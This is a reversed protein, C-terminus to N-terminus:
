GFIPAAHAMSWATLPDIGMLWAGVKELGGGQSLTSVHTLYESEGLKILLFTKFGVFGAVFFVFSSM